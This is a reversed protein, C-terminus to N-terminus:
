GPAVPATPPPNGTVTGQDTSRRDRDPRGGRPPVRGSLRGIAYELPGRGLYRRWLLPVTLAGVVLGIVVPWGDDTPYGGPTEHTVAVLVLLHATYVSLPMAGAAGIPSLVAAVRRAARRSLGLVTSTLAVCLMTLAIGFGVNGVTFASTGVAAVAVPVEDASPEAGIGDGGLTISLGLGTVMAALGLGGATAVVARRTLDLRIIGVGIMIVAVWTLVPYAGTVFWEDLPTTPRGLQTALAATAGPAVVLLVVGAMLLWRASAYVIPLMLLFAIGYEDLIVYVLVGTAQLAFGLVLLCVARIAIQRRLVHRADREAPGPPRIGGILLGLGLGATVAFLLRSREDPVEVLTAAIGGSVPPAAHSVFMGLLALGRAIDIGPIRVGGLRGYPPAWRTV